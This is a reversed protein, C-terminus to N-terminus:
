QRKGEAEPVPQATGAVSTILTADGQGLPWCDGGM